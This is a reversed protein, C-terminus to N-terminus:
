ARELLNKLMENENYCPAAFRAQLVPKRSISVSEYSFLAKDEINETVLMWVIPNESKQFVNWGFELCSEINVKKLSCPFV